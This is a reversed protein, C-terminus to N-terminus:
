FQQRLPTHLLHVRVRTGISTQFAVFRGLEPRLAPRRSNAALPRVAKEDAFVLLLGECAPDARSRDLGTRYRLYHDNHRGFISGQRARQPAAPTRAPRTPRWHRRRGVRGITLWWKHM